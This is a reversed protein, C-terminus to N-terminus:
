GEIRRLAVTGAADHVYRKKEVELIDQSFLDQQTKRRVVTCDASFIQRKECIDCWIRKTPLDENDDSHAVRPKMSLEVVYKRNESYSRFEDHFIRKKDKEASFQQRYLATVEDLTFLGDKVPGSAIDARSM